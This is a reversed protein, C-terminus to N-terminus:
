NDDENKRCSNVFTHVCINCIVFNDHVIFEIYEIIYEVRCITKSNLNSLITDM